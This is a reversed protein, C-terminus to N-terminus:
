DFKYNGVTEDSFYQIDLRNLNLVEEISKIGSAKNIRNRVTYIMDTRYGSEELEKISSGLLTLTEIEDLQQKYKSKIKM